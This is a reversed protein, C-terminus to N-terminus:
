RGALGELRAALWDHGGKRALGAADEGKASKQKVDAGALLLLGAIAADGHMAAAHLPTFGDQQVQNPDAGARLLKDVM